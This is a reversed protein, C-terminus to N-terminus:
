LRAGAAQEAIADPDIARLLTASLEALTKGGALESLEKRQPATVERDLRAIRGALTTLTDEDRKGLAM